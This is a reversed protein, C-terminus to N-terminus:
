PRLHRVFFDTQARDRYLRLKKSSLGHTQGPFIVTEFLRGEAQLASILQLSNEFLVNDDATGHMLMLPRSLKAARQTLDTQAYFKATEGSPLGLYRETYATDYLRFDVVPAGAVAAAFPTNDDLMARAALFGGYSWGRLGMRAPDVAKVRSPLQRAVAFLDAVEVQGFARFHARTFDRDRGGMGRNEVLLVGFGLRQWHAYLPTSPDYRWAVGFPGPGGYADVIVPHLGPAQAADATERVPPMYLANLLTVGDAASFRLVQVKPVIRALLPDPESGTLAAPQVKNDVTQIQIRPPRGWTSETVLMRNCDKDARASRWRQEPGTDLPRTRGDRGLVLLGRAMGGQQMATFVIGSKGACVAAAVAEPQTTLMRREGNVRNVQWLQRRGSSESSWLLSSKGSLPQDKLEILDNHVEVWAADREVLLTHPPLPPDPFEVLHLTTQDRPMWQLWPTGDAFWGARVLYEAEPPTPLPRAIGTAAEIVVARLRANSEGAAPYRQQTSSSGQARIQMRNHIPVPSEDVEMALLHRGDHSWWFGEFREFEEAAIFEALGTSFTESGTTTLRRPAAGVEAGTLPQVWLDNSQVFALQTGERDCRPDRAPAGASIGLRRFVPTSGPEAAGAKALDILFLSGALPVILREDRQGCWQYATIGRQMMRRRELAMKEAETLTEAANGILDASSAIRRPQGEPLPRLWLELVESNAASPQLYSVFRGAPSMRAAIPLRGQLPPEAHIRELSIPPLPADDGAAAAATAILLGFGAVWRGSLVRSCHAMGSPLSVIGDGPKGEAWSARRLGLM